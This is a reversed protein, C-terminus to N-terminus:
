AEESHRQDVVQAVFSAKFVLAKFEIM